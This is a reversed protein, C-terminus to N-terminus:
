RGRARYPNDALREDGSGRDVRPNAPFLKRTANAILANFAPAEPGEAYYLSGCVSTLAVNGKCLVAYVRIPEGPKVAPPTEDYAQCFHNPPASGAPPMFDWTVYFASAAPVSRPTFRGDIAVSDTMAAAILGAITDQYGAFPVGHVRIPVDSQHLLVADREALYDPMVAYDSLRPRYDIHCAPLLAFLAVVLSCTLGNGNPRNIIKM